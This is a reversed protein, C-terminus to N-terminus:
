HPCELMQTVTSDTGFNYRTNSGVLPMEPAPLSGGPPGAPAEVLSEYGSSAAVAADPVGVSHEPRVHLNAYPQTPYAAIGAPPEAIDCWDDDEDSMNAFVGSNTHLEVGQLPLAFGTAAKCPPVAETSSVSPNQGPAAAASIPRALQSGQKAVTSVGGSQGLSATADQPAVGEACPHLGRSFPAPLMLNCAVGTNGAIFAPRTATERGAPSVIVVTPLASAPLAPSIPPSGPIAQSGNQRSAVHRDAEALMQMLEDDLDEQLGELAPYQSFIGM